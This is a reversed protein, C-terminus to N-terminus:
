DLLTHRILAEGLKSGKNKYLKIQLVVVVILPACVWVMGTTDSIAAFRTRRNETLIIRIVLMDCSLISLFITSVSGIALPPSFELSIRGGM